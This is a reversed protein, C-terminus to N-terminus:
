KGEEKQNLMQRIAEPVLPPMKRSHESMSEWSRVTRESYGLRAGLQAQTLGMAVRAAKLEAATMGAGGARSRHPYDGPAVM